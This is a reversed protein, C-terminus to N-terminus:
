RNSGFFPCKNGKFNDLGMRKIAYGIAEKLAKQFEKKENETM